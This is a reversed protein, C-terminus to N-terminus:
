VLRCRCSHSDHYHSNLIFPFTGTTDISVMESLELDESIGAAEFEDLGNERLALQAKLKDYEERLSDYDDSHLGEVNWQLDSELDDQSSIFLLFCLSLAVFRCLSHLFSVHFYM